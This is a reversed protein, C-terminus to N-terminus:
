SRKSRLNAVSLALSTLTLPWNVAWTYLWWSTANAPKFFGLIPVQGLWGILALLGFLCLQCLLGGATSFRYKDIMATDNDVVQSEYMDHNITPNDYGIYLAMLLLGLM